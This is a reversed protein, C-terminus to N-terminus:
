AVNFLLIVSLVWGVLLALGTNAVAQMRCFRCAICEKIKNKAMVRVEIFYIM